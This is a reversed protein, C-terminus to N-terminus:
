CIRWDTNIRHYKVLPQIRCHVNGKGFILSQVCRLLFTVFLFYRSLRHCDGLWIHVLLEPGYCMHMLRYNLNRSAAALTPHAFLSLGILGPIPKLHDLTCAILGLTLRSRTGLSILWKRDLLKSPIAKNVISYVSTMIFLNIKEKIRNNRLM